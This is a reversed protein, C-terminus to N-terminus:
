FLYFTGIHKPLRGYAGWKLVYGIAQQALSRRTQSIWSREIQNLSTMQM